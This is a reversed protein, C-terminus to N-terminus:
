GARDVRPRAVADAPLIDNLHLVYATLAYVEDAPSRRRVARVADRSQHLGLADDRPQAQQRDHADAPRDVLTGVGGPSRCTTTARASRATAARASRTTSRRARRSPAAARRCTGHRRPARRHGLRRDGARDRAQRLRLPAVCGALQGCPSRVRRVRRARDRGRSCYVVACQERRRVPRRALDPDRQQSLDLAHRASRAAPPVDAARLRDRRDVRSQLLAPGGDWQWDIRFRTLAKTLVPEQLRATRWNRGGDTSVDVRKVKGRGSWALGTIEHFGRDLLVQGGSPATIVSKAEQIWTYQRHKGGPMCTSTTCRSRARTGRSTASRSAPAAVEREVRGARRARALRLPYGQEPRLMEGNQGYVVLVDDLAMAMPITRTLAAGDAGEALLFKAKATSASKTSCRRCCCAPGSALLRANRAHVAGDAGRRQAWEMGTNAGCEIFHIRSVSPFRLLDDMTFIRPNRCLGHIMLRHQHPDIDPVGAHHREFHLGSPTIIGFLNQLPTFSVSSHPTRTLGPSERRRINAEFKSPVGYPSALVPAGLSKSWPPCTRAAGAAGDQAIARAASLSTAAGGTLLAARRLFQRRGTMPRGRRPSRATGWPPPSRRPVARRREDHRRTTSCSRSSRSTPKSAARSACACRAASRRSSRTWRAPLVRHQGRPPPSSARRTCSRLHRSVNTQTAGTAAVIASVSREDNCIAHLIRLRMPEALLASIARWRRRVGRRARRRRSQPAARPAAHSRDPPRTSENSHAYVCVISHRSSTISNPGPVPAAPRLRLLMAAATGM